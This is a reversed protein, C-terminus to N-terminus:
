GNNSGMDNDESEYVFIWDPYRTSYKRSMDRRYQDQVM